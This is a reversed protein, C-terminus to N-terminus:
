KNRLAIQEVGCTECENAEKALAELGRPKILLPLEAQVAPKRRTAM